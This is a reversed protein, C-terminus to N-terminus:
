LIRLQIAQLVLGVRSKVGLKEFLAERYGDVTRPSVCMIDAIEKYTLESCALKLFQRERENLKGGEKEEGAVMRAMHMAVLESHYYGKASVADLAAKLEADSTDKLVYGRAGNKIMKLISEEDNNMSLALVKVHEFDKRLWKATTFGDMVPMVVDLLVIDPIHKPTYFMERLEAGNKVTYLVEYGPYKGILDSLATCFLQHDDVIVISTTTM